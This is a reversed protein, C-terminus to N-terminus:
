EDYTMRDRKIVMMQVRTAYRALVLNSLQEECSSLDSAQKRVNSVVFSALYHLLLTLYISYCTRIMALLRGFLSRQLQSALQETSIWVYREGILTTTIDM